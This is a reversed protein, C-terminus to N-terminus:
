VFIYTDRCGWLRCMTDGFDVGERTCIYMCYMLLFATKWIVIYRELNNGDWVEM